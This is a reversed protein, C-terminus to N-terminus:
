LSIVDGTVFVLGGIVDRLLPSPLGFSAVSSVCKFPDVLILWLGMMFARVNTASSCSSAEGLKKEKCVGPTLERSSLTATCRLFFLFNIVLKINETM